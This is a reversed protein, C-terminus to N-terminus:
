DYDFNIIFKNLRQTCDLDEGKIKKFELSSNKSDVANIILNIFHFCAIIVNVTFGARSLASM